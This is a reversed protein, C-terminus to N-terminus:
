HTGNGHMGVKLLTCRLWQTYDVVEALDYCGVSMAHYVAEKLLLADPCGALALLPQFLLGFVLM